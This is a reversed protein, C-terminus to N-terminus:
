SPTKSMNLDTKETFVFHSSFHCVYFKFNINKLRHITSIKWFTLIEIEFLSLISENNVSLSYKFSTLLKQNNPKRIKQTNRLVMPGSLYDFLVDNLNRFDKLEIGVLTQTFSKNKNKKKWCPLAITPLVIFYYFDLIFEYSIQSKSFLTTSLALNLSSFGSDLYECVSRSM